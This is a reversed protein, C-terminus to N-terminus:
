RKVKIICPYGDDIVRLCFDFKDLNMASHFDEEIYQPQSSDFFKAGQPHVRIYHKIQEFDPKIGKLRKEIYEAFLEDEPSRERGGWGMAVLSLVKPNRNRIYDIIAEAMVFSGPLIEEANVANLIGQTGASTRQVVIRDSFDIKMVEYPSNGYDFGEIKFGDKEGILIYNPHLRRLKFAQEKSSVPYVKLAGNGFVYADTTFARFVDIIVTLGVARSAGELLSLRNIKM